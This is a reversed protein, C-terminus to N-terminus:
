RPNFLAGVTIGLSMEDSQLCMDRYSDHKAEAAAIEEPNGRLRAQGLEHAHKMLTQFSTIVKM